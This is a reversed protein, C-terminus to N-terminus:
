NKLGYVLNKDNVFEQFEKESNDYTQYESHGM